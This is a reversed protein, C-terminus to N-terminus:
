SSRLSFVVGQLDVVTLQVNADGTIKCENLMASIMRNGSARAAAATGREMAPIQCPSCVTMRAACAHM